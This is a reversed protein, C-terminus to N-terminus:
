PRRIRPLGRPRFRQVKVIASEIERSDGAAFRAFLRLGIIRSILRVFYAASEASADGLSRKRRSAGTDELYRAFERELRGRVRDGDTGLERLAREVEDPLMSPPLPDPRGFVRHRVGGVVRRPGGLLFFAAGGAMVASKGPSRRVKAPIDVAERTAVRLGDLEVGLEGRSALVEARAAETRAGM